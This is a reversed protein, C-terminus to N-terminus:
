SPRVGLEGDKPFNFVFGIGPKMRLFEDRAFAAEEATVYCGVYVCRGDIVAQARWKKTEPEKTVGVYGSTNSPRMRLNRGNETRTTDRLNSIRNNSRNGDIHDIEGKPWAGYYLAWAVRHAQFGIGFVVGRRYGNSTNTLAQKGAWTTNWIKAMISPSRKGGDFHSSDRSLWTLNGTEPDYDLVQRFQEITPIPKKAM